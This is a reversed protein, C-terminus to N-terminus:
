DKGSTPQQATGSVAVRNRGQAKAHYLAEDAAEILAAFESSADPVATALGISVTVVPAVKAFAHPIGLARVDALMREALKRGQTTDTDPLAVLFEEGGYRAVIDSPRRAAGALSAAVRRLVEDGGLHGYHDNYLKFEDVDCMLITLNGQERRLRAWERDLSQMLCRRNTLGTLDDTLSQRRLEQNTQQLAVEIRMIEMNFLYALTGIMGMAGVANAVYMAHLIPAPLKAQAQGFHALLFLLLVACGLLVLTRLERRYYLLPLIFLLSFYFLHVGIGLLLNVLCLQASTTLVMCNRAQDHRGQHNLWVSLLYAALCINNLAFVRVFPAVGYALYFVQYCVTTFAAGLSGLNVLLIQRRRQPLKEEVGWLGLRPLMNPM